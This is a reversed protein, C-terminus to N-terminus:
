DVIDGEKNIKTIYSLKEDERFLKQYDNDADFIKLYEEKSIVRHYAISESIHKQSVERAEEM